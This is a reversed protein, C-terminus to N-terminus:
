RTRAPLPPTSILTHDGSEHRPTAHAELCSLPMFPSQKATIQM